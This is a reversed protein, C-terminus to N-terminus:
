RLLGARHMLDQFPPDSRLNDYEPDVRMLDPRLSRDEYARELWEFARQKDDLGMYALAISLASVYRTKSLDRLDGVVKQAKGINGSKLYARALVFPNGAKQGETIADAYKGKLLFAYGLISHAVRFNPDLELTKREQEIAADYQGQYILVSGM